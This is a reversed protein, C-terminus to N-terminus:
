PGHDKEQPNSNATCTLRVKCALGGCPLGTAVPFRSKTDAGGVRFVPIQKSRARRDALSNCLSGVFACGDCSLRALQWAKGPPKEGTLENSADSRRAARFELNIVGIEGHYLKECKLIQV